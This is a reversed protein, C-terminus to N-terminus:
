ELKRFIERENESYWKNWQALLARGQDLSDAVEERGQDTTRRSPDVYLALGYSGIRLGTRFEERFHTELDPHLGDLVGDSVLESEALSAQLLANVSEWQENNNSTNALTLASAQDYLAIAEEFSELEVREEDTWDREFLDPNAKMVFSCVIALVAAATLWRDRKSRGSDSGGGDRGGSARQQKKLGVGFFRTMVIMALYALALWFLIDWIM